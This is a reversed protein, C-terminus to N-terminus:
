LRRASAIATSIPDLLEDERDGQNRSTESTQDNPKASVQGSLQLGSRYYFFRQEEFSDTSPRQWTTRRTNHDVYYVRGEPDRRKEWGPPLLENEKSAEEKMDADGLILICHLVPMM